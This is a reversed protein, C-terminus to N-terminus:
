LYTKHKGITKWKTSVRCPDPRIPYFFLKAQLNQFSEVLHFVASNVCHIETAGRILELYSFIPYTEEFYIKKLDSEINLEFTQSSCQNHILIYKEQPPKIMTPPPEKPLRFHSYRIFYELGVQKYFTEEWGEPTTEWGYFGIMLIPINHNQSYAQVEPRHDKDDSVKLLSIKKNDRYLYSVAEINRSLCPMVIDTFIDTNNKQMPNESIYNVLGNCIFHDGLGLHQYVMISIM